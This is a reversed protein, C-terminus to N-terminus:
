TEFRLLRQPDPATLIGHDTQVVGRRELVKLAENTSQRSLGCLLAIEEQTIELDPAPNPYLVPDYLWGLTRAVRSPADLTRDYEVLAMFQGLRENLQRVLFRNFGVSHDLLWAFTAKNMLAIRTDRLAVVDYQRPEDKLMTGEGFWGGTRVGTFTMAKGSKAITSVKVLGRSVGTWHDFRDGRHWLYAGRPYAKEVIGRRAREFEDDALERSWAAIALFTEGTILGKGRRQARPVM